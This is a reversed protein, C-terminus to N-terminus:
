SAPAPAAATLEARISGGLPMGVGEHAHPMGPPGRSRGVLIDRSTM